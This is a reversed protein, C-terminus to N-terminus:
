KIGYRRYQPSATITVARLVHVRWWMSGTLCVYVIEPINMNSESTGTTAAAGRSGGPDKCGGLAAPSQVWGIRWGRTEWRRQRVSGGRSRPWLRRYAKPAAYTDVSMGQEVRGGCQKYIYSLLLINPLITEVEWDVKRILDQVLLSPLPLTPTPYFFCSSICTTSRM